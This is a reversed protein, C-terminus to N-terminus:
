TLILHSYFIIVYMEPHPPSGSPSSVTVQTIGIEKVSKVVRPRKYDLVRYETISLILLVVSM